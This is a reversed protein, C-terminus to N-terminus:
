RAFPLALYAGYFCRWLWMYFYYVASRDDANVLSKRRWILGATLLTGVALAGRRLSDLATAAGVAGLGLAVASACCSGCILITATNLVTAPSFRVSFSRIGFMADGKVDPVDKVIAIVAGFLSFFVMPPWVLPGSVALGYAQFVTSAHTIFGWNVLAGRVGMICIAALIPFRKLRFPPMSYATGLLASGVLTVRLADTSYIPHAFGLWLASILAIVVIAVGARMSLEGSALPLSPKNIRDIEV